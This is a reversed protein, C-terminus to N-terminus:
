IFCKPVFFVKAILVNLQFRAVVEIPVGSLPEIRLFTSHLEPDASLGEVQEGYYPDAQPFEPRTVSLGRIQM